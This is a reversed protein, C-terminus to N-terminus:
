SLDAKNVEKVAGTRKSEERILNELNNLTRQLDEKFAPNAAALPRYIAAAEEYSARAQEPQAVAQQIM